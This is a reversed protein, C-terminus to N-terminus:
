VYSFYALSLSFSWTSFSCKRRWRYIYIIYSGLLTWESQRIWVHTGNSLISNPIKNETTDNRKRKINLRNQPQQKEFCKKEASIFKTAPKLQWYTNHRRIARAQTHIYIVTHTEKQRNQEKKKFKNPYHVANHNKGNWWKENIILQTKNQRCCPAM